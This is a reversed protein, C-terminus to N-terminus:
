LDATDYAGLATAATAALQADTSGTETTYPPGYVTAVFGGAADVAVEIFTEATGGFESAVGDWTWTGSASLAAVGLNSSVLVPFKVNGATSFDTNTGDDVASYHPDGVLMTMKAALGLSGILDWLATLDAGTFHGWGFSTNDLRNGSILFVRLISADAAAATLEETLWADQEDGLATSATQYTITDLFIFRCHAVTFAQYMGIGDSAPLAYHPQTERWAQAANRMVQDFTTGTYTDAYGSALVADHNEPVYVLPVRALLYDTGRQRRIERYSKRHLPVDDTGIDFYGFDGLHLFLAPELNAIAYMGRLTAMDSCSAFVFSFAAAEGAAPLTTLSQAAGAGLASDLRYFYETEPRLGAAEFRVTKWTAGAADALTEDPLAPTSVFVVETFAADTAVVLKFFTPADVAVDAVVSFSRDTLAGAVMLNCVNSAPAAYAETATAAVFYGDADRESYGADDEEETFESTERGSPTSLNGPAAMTGDMLVTFGHFGFEDEVRFVLDADDVPSIGAAVVVDEALVASAAAATESASAAAAAATAIGAQRQAEATNEGTRIIAIDPPGGVDPVTARLIALTM